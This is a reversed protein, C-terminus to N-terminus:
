EEKFEDYKFLYYPTNNNVLTSLFRDRDNDFNSIHDVTRPGIDELYDFDDIDNVINAVIGYRNSLLKQLSEEVMGFREDEFTLLCVNAGNHIRNLINMLDYYATQDNFLWQAYAIDMDNSGNDFINFPPILHLNYFGEYLSTMNYIEMGFVPNPLIKSFTLM